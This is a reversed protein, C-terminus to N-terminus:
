TGGLCLPKHREAQLPHFPRLGMLNHGASPTGLVTGPDRPGGPQGGQSRLGGTQGGPQGGPGGPQGGPQGQQGGPQGSPPTGPDM